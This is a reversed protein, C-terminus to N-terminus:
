AAERILWNRFDDLAALWGKISSSSPTPTNLAQLTRIGTLDLVKVTGDERVKVNAPKLDRHVIGADHESELAEAIQKAIGLRTGAGCEDALPDIKCARQRTRNDKTLFTAQRTKMRRRSWGIASITL